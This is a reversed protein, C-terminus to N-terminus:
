RLGSSFFFSIWQIWSNVLHGLLGTIKASLHTLGRGETKWYFLFILVHFYTMCLWVFFTNLCRWCKECQWLKNEITVMSFQLLIHCSSLFKFTVGKFTTGTAWHNSCQTLLAFTTPEIGMSCMYQCFYTYCSHVIIRKPYFRRSYAYIYIYEVGFHFNHWWNSVEM